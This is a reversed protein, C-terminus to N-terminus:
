DDFTTERYQHCMKKFKKDIKKIFFQSFKSDLSLVRRLKSAAKGSTNGKGTCNKKM